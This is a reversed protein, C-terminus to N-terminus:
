RHGRPVDLSLQQDSPRFIISSQLGELSTCGALLLAALVACLAARRSM